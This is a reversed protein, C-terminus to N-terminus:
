ILLVANRLYLPPGEALYAAQQAVLDTTEPRWAVFAPDVPLLEVVVPSEPLTNRPIAVDIDKQAELSTCCDPRPSTDRDSSDGCGDCAAKPSPMEACCAQAAFGQAGALWLGLSLVALKMAVDQLGAALSIWERFQELIRL